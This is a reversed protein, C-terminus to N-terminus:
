RRPGPALPLFPGPAVGREAWHAAAFLSGVPAAGTTTAARLAAGPAAFLPPATRPTARHPPASLAAYLDQVRARYAAAREPSRSHYLGAAVNWDGTEAHLRKLFRAAYLANAEPDLMAEPSAFAGGHWHLNIQFCGMDVHGPAQSLTQRLHRSAATRSEPWYGRGAINLAWPWPRLRGGRNRGTEALAIARLLAVPVGTLAAAREAAAECLASPDPAPPEPSARSTSGPAPAALAPASPAPLSAVLALACAVATLTHGPPCPRRPAQMHPALTM